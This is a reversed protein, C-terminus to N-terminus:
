RTIVGMDSLAFSLVELFEDNTMANIKDTAYQEADPALEHKCCDRVRSERVKNYFDYAREVNM